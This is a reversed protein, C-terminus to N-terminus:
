SLLSKLSRGLAHRCHPALPCRGCLPKRAICISRGHAVMLHGYAIWDARDVKNMLDREIAPPDDHDTLGILHSIRACHTDVVIAPIGYADGLILNAIKRGVGPLAVLETIQDPMHGDYKELLQRSAGLIARTKARFLGCSRILLELDAPEAAALMELTPYRAFLAPTIQNVRIDTCQASLIAAAMLQWPQQYDLTCDAQPYLRRLERVVMAALSAHHEALIAQAPQNM